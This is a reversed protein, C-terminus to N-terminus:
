WEEAPASRFGFRRRVRLQSLRQSQIIGGGNMAYVQASPTGFIPDKWGPGLNSLPIHDLEHDQVSPDM